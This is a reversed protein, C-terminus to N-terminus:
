LRPRREFADRQKWTAFSTFLRGSEEGEGAFCLPTAFDPLSDFSTPSDLAAPWISETRFLAGDSRQADPPLVIQLPAAVPKVEDSYYILEVPTGRHISFALSQASSATAM